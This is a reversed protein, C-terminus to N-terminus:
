EAAIMAVRQNLAGAGGDVPLHVMVVTGTGVQSRIRLSGGHMEILSRAIALGLGTGKYRRSLENEVQEFPRGLRALHAPPIGIGDDEIYINVAEGVHRTRITVHGGEDTFKIANNLLHGLVQQLARGDASIAVHAGQDIDLTIGKDQAVRRTRECAESIARDVLVPRRELKVRGAEIRAMDLVEDILGLLSQGSTRIDRCYEGYKACGLTGFVGNEMIESFGIIANLPTRLEHSMNALFEAKARNAGEAEAKQELYRDALEGMVQAQAELSRRSAKLESITAMLRQESVLMDEEHRKLATIDTGIAVHGGDKTRRENVHMWRGDALHIETRRTGEEPAGVPILLNEALLAPAAALLEHESM